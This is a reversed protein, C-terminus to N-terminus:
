QTQEQTFDLNCSKKAYRTQQQQQKTDTKYIVEIYANESVKNYLNQQTQM